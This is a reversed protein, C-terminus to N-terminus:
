GTGVDVLYGLAISIRNLINQISIGGGVNFRTESVVGAAPPCVSLVFRVEGRRSRTEPAVGAAPPFPFFLLRVGGRDSRHNECNM